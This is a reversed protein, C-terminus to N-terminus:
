WPHSYKEREQRAIEKDELARIRNNNDKIILDQQTIREQLTPIEYYIKYWTGSITVVFAIIMILERANVNINQWDIRM